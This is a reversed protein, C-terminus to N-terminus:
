ERGTDEPKFGCGYCGMREMADRVVRRGCRLCHTKYSPTLAIVDGTSRGGERNFGCVFCGKKLFEKKVVNKGCSPCCLWYGSHKKLQRKEEEARRVKEMITNLM